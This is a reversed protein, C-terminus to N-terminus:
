KQVIVRIIPTADTMIFFLKVYGDVPIINDSNTVLLTNTGSTLTIDHSGQNQIMCEWTYGSQIQFVNSAITSAAPITDTRPATQGDRLIYGSLLESTAYTVAVTNNKYTWPLICQAPNNTIVIKPSYMMQAVYCNKDILVGGQSHVAAGDGVWNTSGETVDSASTFDVNSSVTLSSQLDTAGTVTLGGGSAATVNGNVTLNSNNTQSTSITLSTGDFQVNGAGDLETFSSVTSGNEFGIIGEALFPKLMNGARIVSSVDLNSSITQSGICTIGTTSITGTSVSQSTLSTGVYAKKAVALGGSITVAGGAASSTADTTSSASLTSTAVGTCNVTSTNVSTGAYLKKAVALGGSVTVAGGSLSSVADTSSTAKVQPVEVYSDVFVDSGVNMVNKAPTVASATNTIVISNPHDTNGFRLTKVDGGSNEDVRVVMSNTGDDYGVTMGVRDDDRYKSNVARVSKWRQTTTGLDFANDISPYLTGGQSTGGVQGVPLNTVTKTNLM